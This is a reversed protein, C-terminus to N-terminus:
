VDRAKRIREAPQLRGTVLCQKVWDMNVIGKHNNVLPKVAAEMKSKSDDFDLFVHSYVAASKVFVPSKSSSFNAATASDFPLALFDIRSASCCSLLSLLVYAHRNFDLKQSVFASSIIPSDRTM